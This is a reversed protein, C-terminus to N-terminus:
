LVTDIILSTVFGLFAGVFVQVRTHGVSESLPECILAPMELPDTSATELSSTTGLQKATLTSTGTASNENLPFLKSIELESNNNNHIGTKVLCRVSSGEQLAIIKNLAQAHYGVEKRVGQLKNIASFPILLTVCM